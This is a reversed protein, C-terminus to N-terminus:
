FKNYIRYLIVAAEARNSTAKPNLRDGSGSILGEKVLTALSELAYADIDGRDSFRNLVTTDSAVKLEKFKELARFTLVMMEQRTIHEKPGFRNSEVGNTIGLKKAIGVAEYYYAGPTVDDFNDDVDAKLDLTKILLVLYDARTINAMPSYTMPSTGNIIGKSAMVEIPNKAWKVIDLDSFTKYSYAAAYHSFHTTNFTVTATKPNYRGNPISMVKGNGDIYWVVIHELNELEEASPMYPISVMVPSTPNNWETQVGDLKFTLKVFPRDGIMTKVEDPLTSMDGQGITIEAENGSVGMLMNDTLTMSGLETSFTLKGKGEVGSLTFVPINMTYAKVGSIPPLTVLANGEDTFINEALIGLNVRAHGSDTNVTIPLDIKGTGIGLVEAKYESINTSTGKRDAYRDKNVAEITLTASNGGDFSIEFAVKDGESLNLSDIYEESITLTSGEITYDVNERLTGAECIIGIVSQVDGWSISTSVDSLHNLDFTIRDPNITANVIPAATVEQTVTFSVEALHDGMVTVTVTYTGAILSDKAKVTFTTSPTESNLTTLVPQTIAFSDANSGSLTVTLHNLDGTGTSTLTIIKTEKTGSSYGEILPAMSLDNLAAITYTFPKNVTLVASAVNSGYGAVIVMVGESEYPVLFAYSYVGSSDSKVEDFFVINQGEDMVKVAIWTDPESVGSVVVTDGEESNSASLNITTTGTAHVGTFHITTLMLTIVIFLFYKKM